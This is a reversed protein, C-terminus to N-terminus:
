PPFAGKMATWIQCLVKTVKGVPYKLIWVCGPLHLYETTKKNKKINDELYLSFLHSNPGSASIRILNLKGPKLIVTQETENGVRNPDTWGEWVWLNEDDDVSTMVTYNAAHCVKNNCEPPAAWKQTNVNSQQNGKLVRWPLFCNPPILHNTIGKQSRLFYFSVIPMWEWADSQHLEASCGPFNHTTWQGSLHTPEQVHGWERGPSLDRASLRPM